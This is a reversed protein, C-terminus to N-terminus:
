KANHSVSRKRAHPYKRIRSFHNPTLRNSEARTKAVAQFANRYLTNPVFARRSPAANGDPTYGLALYDGTSAHM